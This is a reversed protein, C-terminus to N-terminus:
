SSGGDLLERLAEREARERELVDALPEPTLEDLRATLIGTLVPQSLAETEIAEHPRGDRYRQDRKVIALRRLDYADAQAETLALREWALGPSYQYLV